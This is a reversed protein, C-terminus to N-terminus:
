NLSEVLFQTCTISTTATTASLAAYLEPTQVQSTVLTSLSSLVLAGSGGVSPLPSGVVAESTFVGHSQLTGADGTSRCTTNVVLSWAVDTKGADNLAITEGAFNFFEGTYGVTLLLTGPTGADCSIRGSATVRFTTGVKISNPPLELYAALPEIAAAGGTTGDITTGDTTSLVLTEVWTQGSM